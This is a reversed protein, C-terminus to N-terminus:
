GLIEKLSAKSSAAWAKEGKAVQICETQTDHELMVYHNPNQVMRHYLQEKEVLSKLPDVDFGMLFPLNVHHATPLLDAGHTLLINSDPFTIDFHAMFPTHGQGVHAVVQGDCLTTQDETLWEFKVASELPKFDDLRFSARDKLSPESAHAWHGKHVVHTANPFTPCIKGQNDVTTLGGAHDFHLHTIFVTQIDEPTVGYAKLGSTLDPGTLNIGYIDAFKEDWRKGAGCDILCWAGDQARRFLLSRMSLGIRNREDAPILRNWIPKPVVGFMAGGDLRVQGTEIAYAEM